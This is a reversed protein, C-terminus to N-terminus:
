PSSTFKAVPKNVWDSEMYKQHGIFVDYIILATLTWTIFKSLIKNQVLSESKERNYIIIADKTISVSVLLRNSGKRRLKKPFLVLSRM